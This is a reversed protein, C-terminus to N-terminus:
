RLRRSARRLAEVQPRTGRFLTREDVFCIPNGSPDNAYFSREGWPRKVVEGMPSAPDGHLVGRALCDLRKARRHVGEVDKTAFYLAEASRPLRGRQASYDLLGLLVAGCDFYVRGGAVVRGRSGLLSEYFRRSRALDKSPLLVRFVRPTARSSM